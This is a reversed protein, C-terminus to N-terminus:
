GNGITTAVTVVNWRVPIMMARGYKAEIFRRVAREDRRDGDFDDARYADGALEEAIPDVVGPRFLEVLASGCFRGADAAWPNLLLKGRGEEGAVIGAVEPMRFAVAHDFFYCPLAINTGALEGEGPTPIDVAGYFTAAVQRAITDQFRGTAVLWIVRFAGEPSPTARLQHKKDRIATAIASQHGIRRDDMPMGGERLEREFSGDDMKRRVEVVYSEAGKSAMLDARRDTNTPIRSVEFGSGTLAGVVLDEAADPSIMFLVRVNPVDSTSM